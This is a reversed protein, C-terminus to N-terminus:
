LPCRDREDRKGNLMDDGIYNLRTWNDLYNFSWGKIEMLTLIFGHSAGISRSKLRPNVWSMPPMTGDFNINSKLVPLLSFIAMSPPM